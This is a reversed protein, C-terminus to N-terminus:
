EVDGKQKLKRKERAKRNHEWQKYIEDVSKNVWTCWGDQNSHCFKCYTKNKICMGTMGSNFRKETM